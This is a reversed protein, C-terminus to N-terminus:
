DQKPARYGRRTRTALEPRALKVEITRFRGDRARNSPRYGVTYQNSLEEVIDSFATSLSQGGPTPIYRGGTRQAFNRLAGVGLLRERPSDQMSSLDVTYITVNAALAAALAKDSSSNSRTDAGDSLIVIARRPEPRKALDVSAQLVADNLATMGKARVDFALHPLDRSASFDQMQEVKTDFRYLTAVDEDRLGDLFRIAASRALSMRGEMSGSSDLLIAAAFPTEEASFTTIAQEKGDEFVRFADRPLKHVYKGVGDKVTVNLVVLESEVRVIEDEDQLRARASSLVCLSALLALPLLLFARWARFNKPAHRAYFEKAQTM